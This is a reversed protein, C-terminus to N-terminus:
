YSLHIMYATEDFAKTSFDYYHFQDSLFIQKVRTKKGIKEKGRMKKKQPQM